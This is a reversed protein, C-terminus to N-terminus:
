IANTQLGRTELNKDKIKIADSAVGRQGADLELNSDSSRGQRDPPRTALYCYRGKGLNSGPQPGSSSRIGPRGLRPITRVGAAGDPAAGSAAAAPAGDVRTVNRPLGRIADILSRKAPVVLRLECGVHISIPTPARRDRGSGSHRSETDFQGNGANRPSMKM